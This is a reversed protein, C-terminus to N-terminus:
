FGFVECEVFDDVWIHFLREWAIGRWDVCAVASECSDGFEFGLVGLEDVEEKGVVLEGLGDVGENDLVADAADFCEVCADVLLEWVWCIGLRDAVGDCVEDEGHGDAESDFAGLAVDEAGM